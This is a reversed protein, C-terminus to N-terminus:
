GYCIGRAACLSGRRGTPVELKSVRRRQLIWKHAPTPTPGGRMAIGWLHTPDYNPVPLYTAMKALLDVKANRWIEEWDKAYRAESEQRHSPVWEIDVTKTGLNDYVIHRLDMDACERTPAVIACAIVGKNDIFLKDGNQVLATGITTGQVEARYSKQPGTVRTVM